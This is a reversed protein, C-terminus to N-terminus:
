QKQKDLLWFFYHYIKYYYTKGCPIHKMNRLYKYGINKKTVGILLFPALVPGAAELCTQEVLDIKSKLSAKKIGMNETPDGIGSGHVEGNIRAAAPATSENYEQKWRDYQLAYYKLEYYRAAPLRHPNKKSLEPHVSM